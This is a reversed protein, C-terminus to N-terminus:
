IKENKEGAAQSILFQTFSDRPSDLDWRSLRQSKEICESVKEIFGSGKNLMSLESILDLLIELEERRDKPWIDTNKEM